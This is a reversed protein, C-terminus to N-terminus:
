RVVLIFVIATKEKDEKYVIKFGIRNLLDLGMGAVLTRAKGISKVAQNIAEPGIASVIVKKGEQIHKMISAATKHVNNKSSVRLEQVVGELIDELPYDEPHDREIREDREETVTEM